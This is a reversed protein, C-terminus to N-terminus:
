AETGAVKVADAEGEGKMVDLNRFTTSYCEALPLCAIVQPAGAADAFLPGGLDPPIAHDQGSMSRNGTAKNDQFALISV